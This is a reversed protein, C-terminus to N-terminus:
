KRVPIRIGRKGMANRLATTSAPTPQPTSEGQEMKNIRNINDLYM